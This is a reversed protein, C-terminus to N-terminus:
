SSRLSAGDAEVLEGALRPDGGGGARRAVLEDRTRAPGGTELRVYAELAVVVSDPLAEDGGPDSDRKRGVQRELGQVRADLRPRDGEAWELAADERHV